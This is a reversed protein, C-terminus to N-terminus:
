LKRQIVVRIPEHADGGFIERLREQRYTFIRILDPGVLLQHVAYGGPVDYDVGDEVVTGDREARFLHSHRWYRYPGRRQEDRFRSEPEWATIETRWHFPVGRLRLRYDLTAGRRMEVGPTLLRFQLFAPSITELNSADAFFAFVRDVPAPLWLRTELRFPV